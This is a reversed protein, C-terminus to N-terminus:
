GLQRIVKKLSRRADQHSSRASGSGRPSLIAGSGSIATPMAQPGGAMVGAGGTVSNAMMNSQREPYLPEKITYPNEEQPGYEFPYKMRFLRGKTPDDQDIVYHKPDPGTPPDEVPQAPAAPALLSLVLVAVLLALLKRVVKARWSWDLM